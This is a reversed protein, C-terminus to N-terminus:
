RAITDFDAALGKLYLNSSRIFGIFEVILLPIVTYIHNIKSINGFM